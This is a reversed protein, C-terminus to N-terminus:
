LLILQLICSFVYPKGENLEDSRKGYGSAFSNWARKGMGGAFGSNWARKGMGGAFGSNWARKGMGGAFGSNWARKGMGGAFGSNWARKETDIDYSPEEDQFLWMANKV